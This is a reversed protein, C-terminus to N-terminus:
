KCVANSKELKDAYDIMKAYNNILNHLLVTQTVNTENNLTPKVVYPTTCRQVSVVNQKEACGSFLLIAISILFIKLTM